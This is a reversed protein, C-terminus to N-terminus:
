QNELEKAVVENGPDRSRPSVRARGRDESAGPTLILSGPFSTAKAVLGQAQPSSHQKATRKVTDHCETM